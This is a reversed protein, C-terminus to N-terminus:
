KISKIPKARPMKIIFGGPVAIVEAGRINDWGYDNVLYNDTSMEALEYFDSVKVIGWRSIIDDMADLVMDADMKSKFRIRDIDFDFTARTAPNRIYSSKNTDGNIGNWYSITESIGSKRTLDSKKDEGFLFMSLGGTAISWFLQKAGPLIVNQILYDKVNKVPELKFISKKKEILSPKSKVVSKKTESANKDLSDKSKFSNSKLKSIDIESM